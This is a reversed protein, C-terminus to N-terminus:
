QWRSYWKFWRRLRQVPRVSLEDSMGTCSRDSAMFSLSPRLNMGTDGANVDELCARGTGKEFDKGFCEELRDGVGGRAAFEACTLTEEMPCANRRGKEILASDWFVAVRHRIEKVHDQDLSCVNLTLLVARFLEGRSMAGTSNTNWFRFWEARNSLQPLRGFRGHLHEDEHRQLWMYLGSALFDALDLNPGLSCRQREDFLSEDCLSGNDVAASLKDADVPLLASAAKILTSMSAVGDPGGFFEFWGLPNNSLRPLPLTMPASRRCEPCRLKPGAISAATSAATAVCQACRSCIFHPCVLQEEMNVFGMPTNMYLPDFCIPCEMGDSSALSAPYSFFDKQKQIWAISALLVKRFQHHGQRIKFITYELTQRSCWVPRSLCNQQLIKEATKLWRPDAALEMAAMLHSQGDAHGLVQLAFGPLNAHLCHHLLQSTLENSVPLGQIFRAAVMDMYGDCLAPAMVWAQASGTPLKTRLVPDLHALLQCPDEHLASATYPSLGDDALAHPDAGCALALAAIECPGHLEMEAALCACSRPDLMGSASVGAIKGQALLMPLSLPNTFLGSGFTTTEASPVRSLVLETDSGIRLCAFQWPEKKHNAQLSRLSGQCMKPEDWRVGEWDKTVSSAVWSRPPGIGQMFGRAQPWGVLIQASFELSHTCVKGIRLTWWFPRKKGVLATIQGNELAQLLPAPQQCATDVCLRLATRRTDDVENSALQRKGSPLSRMQQLLAAAIGWQRKSVVQLIEQGFFDIGSNPQVVVSPAPPRGGAVKSATKYDIIRAGQSATVEAAIGRCAAITVELEGVQIARSPAPLSITQSRGVWRRCLRRSAWLKLRCAVLGLPSKRAMARMPVDKLLWELREGARWDAQIKFSGQQLILGDLGVPGLRVTVFRSGDVQTSLLVHCSESDGYPPLFGGIHTPEPVEM